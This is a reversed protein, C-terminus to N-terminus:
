NRLPLRQTHGLGSLHGFDLRVCFAKRRKREQNPFDALELRQIPFPHRSTPPELTFINAGTLNTPELVADFIAVVTQGMAIETMHVIPVASKAFLELIPPFYRDCLVDIPSRLRADTHTAVRIDYAPPWSIDTGNIYIICARSVTAPTANKLHSIDFALPMSPMLLIGENSALTLMKHDDMVTNM